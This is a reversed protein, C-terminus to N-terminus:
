ASFAERDDCNYSTVLLPATSLEKMCLLFAGRPAKWRLYSMLSFVVCSSSSTIRSRPLFFIHGLSCRFRVLNSMFFFTAVCGFYKWWGDNFSSESKLSLPLLVSLWTWEYTESLFDIALAVKPGVGPPATSVASLPIAWCHPKWVPLLLRRMFLVISAPESLGKMSTMLGDPYSVALM